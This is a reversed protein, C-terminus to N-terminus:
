FRPVGVRVEESSDPIFSLAKVASSELMNTVGAVDTVTSVSAMTSATKSAILSSVSVIGAIAKTVSEPLFQMICLVLIAGLIFDRAILKTAPIKREVYYTGGVSMLSLAVGGFIPGVWKPVSSVESM